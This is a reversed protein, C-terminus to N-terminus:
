QWFFQEIIESRDNNVHESSDASDELQSLYQLYERQDVIFAPEIALDDQKRCLGNNYILHVEMAM